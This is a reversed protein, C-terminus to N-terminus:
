LPPNANAVLDSFYPTFFVGAQPAGQKSVKSGCAADYRPASPDSTGDSEGPPKIWYYADVLPLPSARPREGLGAGQANCWSEGNTLAGNRSTDIIFTKGTVGAATLKETLRQIYTVEDTSPDGPFRPKGPLANVPDYNSVNIAFGRVRDAGGAAAMVEAFLAAAKDRNGNWGLWGAHAADLYVWVNPMSLAEVAYAISRKYAEASVKCKPKDLNSVLNGLSDPEIVAVIRLSPHARFAAALPDIFEAKYRAEGKSEVALEGASSAASCDRNPLDYVVFTAVMPRGAAQQKAAADDLYHAAQHAKAISDFWVATPNSAVKAFKAADAPAAAAVSAVEAAYDPNVYFSAGDFPNGQAPSAHTGSTPSSAPEGTAGGCSLTLGLTGVVLTHAVLDRM